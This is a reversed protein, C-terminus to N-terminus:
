FTTKDSCLLIGVKREPRLIEVKLHENQIDVKVHKATTGEELTVKIELETVTQSWKYSDMDAGNYVDSTYNFAKTREKKDVGGEGAKKSVVKESKESEGGEEGRGGKIEEEKTKKEENAPSSLEQNAVSVPLEGEGEKAGGGSDGSALPLSAMKEVKKTEEQRM